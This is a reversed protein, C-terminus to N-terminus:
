EGLRVARREAARGFNAMGAGAAHSAISRMGLLRTRRIVRQMRQSPSPGPVLSAPRRPKPAPARVSGATLSLALKPMGRTSTDHRRRAKALKSGSRPVFLFAMGAATVKSNKRVGLVVKVGECWGPCQLSVSPVSWVGGRGGVAASRSRAVVRHM